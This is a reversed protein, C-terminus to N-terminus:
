NVSNMGKPNADTNRFTVPLTGCSVPESCPAVHFHILYGLLLFVGMSLLLGASSLQRKNVPHLSVCHPQGAVPLLTLLPFALLRRPLGSDIRM